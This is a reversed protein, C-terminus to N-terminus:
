VHASAALRRARLAQVRQYLRAELPFRLVQREVRWLAARRLPEYLLRGLPHGLTRSLASDRHYRSPYALLLYQLFSRVTTLYDPTLHPLNPHSVDLEGWDEVRQPQPFLGKEVAIEFMRSGPLPVCFNMQLELQPNIAKLRAVLALTEALTGEPEDPYGVMFFLYQNIGHRTLVRVAETTQEVTTKNTIQRLLEDSGTEAGIAVQHCGSRRLKDLVEGDLQVLRSAVGTATWQFRGALDGGLIMDAIAMLRPRGLFFNGDYFRLSNVGHGVWFRLESEMRSLSLGFWKQRSDLCFDCQYPCGRSFIANAHRVDGPGHRIYRQVDVLDYAFPPLDNVDIPPAQHVDVTTDGDRWTIGPIGRLSRGERLADLVQVFSHEAQGKITVDIRPDEVAQRAAFSAHWGGWVVPLEPRLAKVLGSFALGDKVAHGTMGSVGVCTVGELWDALQERHRPEWKADLIRVGYGAARLPTGLALYPLPPTSLYDASPTWEESVYHPMYLLVTGKAGTATM